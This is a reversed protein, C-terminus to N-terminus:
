AASERRRKRRSRQSPPTFQYRYEGYAIAESRPLRNMVIGLTRGRVADISEMAKRLQERTVIGAGVVVIAGGVLTSLIAADTVPLLPPADILVHDFRAELDRLTDIMTQSGLLESPNPPIQGAGMVTLTTRGFPQLVESLDARYILVDTLGISGELGMYQLLRPRRLDADVLCVRSGVEALALALNAVTTSKGEGQTSSTVVVSRPHNAADVFRLNTRLSRFAEARASRPDAQVILPHDGADGDFPIAGIVTRDSVAKLDRESKVRTDLIDRLVALGLGLILGFFLGLALDRVPKPSVPTSDTTAPQVVTVKVPSSTGAAVSELTNVTTPFSRSLSDAIRTARSPDVDTVSVDILVTDPPVSASITRAIQEPTTGPPGVEAAVPALVIPTTLLQSYTKVREQTFTNGQLLQGSDNSGSTSIFFQTSSEYKKPTVLIYIAAAAVALVCTLVILRWRKRFISLYDQLEV